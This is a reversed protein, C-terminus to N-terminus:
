ATRDTIRDIETGLDIQAEAISEHFQKVAAKIREADNATLPGLVPGRAMRGVAEIYPRQSEVYDSVRAREADTLPQFCPPAKAVDKLLRDTAKDDSAKEAADRRAKLDAAPKFSKAVEAAYENPTIADSAGRNAARANLADAVAQAISYHFFWTGDARVAEWNDSAARYWRDGMRVACRFGDFAPFGEVRAMLGPVPGRADMADELTPHTGNIIPTAM